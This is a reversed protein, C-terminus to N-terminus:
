DLGFIIGITERFGDHIESQPGLRVYARSVMLGDSFRLGSVVRTSVCGQSLGSEVRVGVICSCSNEGRRM